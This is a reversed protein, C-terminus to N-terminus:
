EKPTSYLVISFFLLGVLCQKPAGAIPSAGIPKCASEAIPALCRNPAKLVVNNPRHVAMPNGPRASRDPEQDLDGM